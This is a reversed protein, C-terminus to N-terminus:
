LAPPEDVEPSSIASSEDNASTIPTENAAQDTIETDAQPSEPDAPSQNNSETATAPTAAKNKSKKKKRKPKDSADASAPAPKEIVEQVMLIDNTFLLIHGQHLLWFLDAAFEAPPANGGEPLVAEWLGALKAPTNARIWEVMIAPRAALVANKPLPNPRAPGTYLKGKRKFIPMHEAEVARCIVPILSAPNERSHIGALKLSLALSPSLLEVPTSALMEIRRIETFADNFHRAALAREADPQNDIWAEDDSGKIRWRNKKKMTEMWANVAEEGRETRVKAAYAEFPMTPFRERHVRRLNTQYAHFNPPGLLEGSIGCRAISQFSGAPPDVEVTEEELFQQRLKSNWLHRIAEERKVFLSDDLKGHILPPQAEEVEFIARCRSREAIIIKAVDYLPYVRAVQQVEKGILRIAEQDPIITVNVGVAPTVMPERRTDHNQFRSQGRDERRDKFSRRERNHANADLPREQQKNGKESKKRPEAADRAWSPGLAFSSLLGALSQKEPNSV